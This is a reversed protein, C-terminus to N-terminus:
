EIKGKSGLLAEIEVIKQAIQQPNPPYIGSNIAQQLEAVRAQNFAPVADAAHKIAALLAEARAVDASDVSTGAPSPTTSVAPQPSGAQGTSAVGVPDATNVGHIPDPM